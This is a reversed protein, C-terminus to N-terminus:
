WKRRGMNYEGLKEELSLLQRQRLEIHSICQDKEEGLYNECRMTSLGSCSVLFLLILIKM